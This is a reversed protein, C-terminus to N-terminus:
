APSLEGEPLQMIGIMNQETDRFWAVRAGSVNTINDEDTTVVPSNYEEFEVGRGKLDAVEAEVDEVRFAMQSHGGRSTKATQYIAFRSGDPLIFFVRVPGDPYATLGLVESYFAQARKLDNAPLTAHVPYDKVAMLEGEM